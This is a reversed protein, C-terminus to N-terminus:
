RRGGSPAKPDNRSVGCAWFGVRASANLNLPSHLFAIAGSKSISVYIELNLRLTFRILHRVHSEVRRVSVFILPLLYPLPLAGIQVLLVMESCSQHLFDTLLGGGALVLHVRASASFHAIIIM